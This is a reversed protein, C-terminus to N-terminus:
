DGFLLRWPLASSRRRDHQFRPIRPSTQKLAPEIEGLRSPSTEVSRLPVPLYHKCNFCMPKYVEREHFLPSFRSFVMLSSQEMRINQSKVARKRQIPCVRKHFGRIRRTEWEPFEIPDPKSRCEVFQIKPRDNGPSFRIDHGSKLVVVGSDDEVNELLVSPPGLFKRFFLPRPLFFTKLCLDM